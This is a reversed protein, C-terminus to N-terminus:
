VGLVPVWGGPERRVGLREAYLWRLGSYALAGLFAMWAAPLPGMVLLGGLVTIPMLNVSGGGLPVGFTMTFILLSTFLGWALFDTPAPAATLSLYALVALLLLGAAISVGHRKIPTM